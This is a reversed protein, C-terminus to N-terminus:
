EIRRCIEEFADFLILLQSKYEKMFPVEEYDMKSPINRYAKYTYEIEDYVSDLLEEYYEMYLDYTDSDIEDNNFDIKLEEIKDNIIEVTGDPDFKYPDQESNIKLKEVWYGQSVTNNKTPHFERCFIWNGYDGTVITLGKMCIFEISQMHSYNPHKLRYSHYHENVDIILERDSWDEIRYKNENNKM